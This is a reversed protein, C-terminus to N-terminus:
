RLESAGSSVSKLLPADASEDASVGVSVGGGTGTSNGNLANNNNNVAAVEVATPMQKVKKRQEIDYMAFAYMFSGSLGVTLGTLLLPTSQVGLLLISVFSSMVNKVQGTVSTTLASNAQTCWFISYNLVFSMVASTGFALQFMSSTLHPFDAIRAWEGNLAALVVLFPLSLLSNYYMLGFTDNILNTGSLATKVRVLYLATIVNNMMVMTYGVLDFQLDGWGGILSGFVMILVAVVVIVTPKKKLLLYEHVVVMLVTLRRLTAFMPISTAKLAIMGVVINGVFCLSLPLARLALASDFNAYHLLHLHRFLALLVVCVVMHFLTMIVPFNFKYSSLVIKNFILICVSSLAYSVASLLASHSQIISVSM